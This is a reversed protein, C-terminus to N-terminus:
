HIRKGIRSKWIVEPRLRMNIAFGTLDKSTTLGLADLVVVVDTRWAVYIVFDLASALSDISIRHRRCVVRQVNPVNCHQCANDRSLWRRRRQEV